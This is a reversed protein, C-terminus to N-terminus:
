EPIVISFLPKDKKCYEQMAKLSFPHTSDSAITWDFDPSLKANPFVLYAYIKDTQNCVDYGLIEMVFKCGVPFNQASNTIQVAGNGESGDATYEAMIFIQEDAAFGAKGDEAYVYTVENGSISVATRATATTTVTLKDALTGDGKLIYAKAASAQATTLTHALTAKGGSTVDITAWMPVTITNTSAAVKKTTGSQTAMLNMDFMANEASFEANKARYFTAVPVNLADVVDTSESTCSLSPNSIQTIAFLVDDKKVGLENSDGQAVAIGRLIRDIIFNNMDFAM